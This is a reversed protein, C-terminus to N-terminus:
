ELICYITHILVRQEPLADTKENSRLFIFTKSSKKRHPLKGGTHRRTDGPRKRWLQPGAEQWVDLIAAFSPRARVCFEEGVGRALRRRTAWIATELPLANPRGGCRAFYGLRGLAGDASPAIGPLASPRRGWGTLPHHVAAKHRVTDSSKGAGRVMRPLEDTNTPRCRHTGGTRVMLWGSHLPRCGQRGRISHAMSADLIGRGVFHNRNRGWVGTLAVRYPAAPCAPGARRTTPPNTRPHPSCSPRRGWGTLPHHVAAKHRVTDSSIVYGGGLGHPATRGHEYPPVQTHRRYAGDAMRFTPAPM